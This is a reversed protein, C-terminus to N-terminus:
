PDGPLGLRRYQLAEAVHEPRLREAGALDALTRAVRRVRDFARASLDLRRAAALLLGKSRGEVPAFRDLQAPAM